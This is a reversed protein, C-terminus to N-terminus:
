IGIGAFVEGKLCTIWPLRIASVWRYLMTIFIVTTALPLISVLIALPTVVIHGSSIKYVAQQALISLGIFIPGSTMLLAYKIMRRIRHDPKNSGLMANFSFEIQYLM